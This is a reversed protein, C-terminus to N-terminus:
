ARFSLRSLVKDGDIVIRLDEDRREKLALSSISTSSIEFKTSEIQKKNEWNKKKRAPM